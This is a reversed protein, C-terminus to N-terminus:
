FVARSFRGLGVPWWHRHRAWQSRDFRRHSVVVATKSECAFKGRPARSAPFEDRASRKNARFSKGSARLDSSCVDSSWDSGQVGSKRDLLSPLKPNAPLNEARRVRLPSNTATAENTQAFLNEAPVTFIMTAMLWKFFQPLKMQIKHASNMNM